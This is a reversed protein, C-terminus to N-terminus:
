QVTFAKKGSSVIKGDLTAIVEVEYDAGVIAGTLTIEKVTDAVPWVRSNVRWEIATYDGTITFTTNGHSAVIAIDALTPVKIVTGLENEAVGSSVTGNGGINRLLAEKKVEVKTTAATTIAEDVEFDAVTSGGLIDEDVGISGAETDDITLTIVGDDEASHLYLPGDKFTANLLDITITGVGQIEVATFPVLSPVQAAIDELVEAHTIAVQAAGRITESSAAISVTYVIPSTTANATFTVTVTATATATDGDVGANTVTVGAGSVAFDDATLGVVGTAGTFTVEATEAAAAVTVAPGATLEARHDVVSVAIKYVLKTGDGATGEVWVYDGDVILAPTWTGFAPATAGSSTKAYKLTAQADRAAARFDAGLAQLDSITVAGATAAGYTAAPTGLTGTTVTGLEYGTITADDRLDIGAVTREEGLVYAGSNTHITALKYLGNRIGDLEAINGTVLISGQGDYGDVIEDGDYGAKPVAYIDSDAVAAYATISGDAGLVTAGAAPAKIYENAIRVSSYNYVEDVATNVDYVTIYNGLRGLGALAVEGSALLDTTGEIATAVATPAEPAAASFLYVSKHGAAAAPVTAKTSGVTLASAALAVSLDNKVVQPAIAVTVTIPWTKGGKSLTVTASTTVDIASKNQAKLTVAGATLTLYVNAADGAVASVARAITADAVTDPKPVIVTVAGSVIVSNLVRVDRELKSSEKVLELTDADALDSARVAGEADLEDTAVVAAPAATSVFIKTAGLKAATAVDAIEDGTEFWIVGASLGAVQAVQVTPDLSPEAKFSTKERFFLSGGPSGAEDGEIILSGNALVTIGGVDGPAAGRANLDDYSTVVLRTGRKITFSAVSNLAGVPAGSGIADNGVLYVLKQGDDFFAKAGGLSTAVVGLGDLGASGPVTSPAGADGKPGPGGVPGECGTLLFGIALAAALLGANIQKKSM